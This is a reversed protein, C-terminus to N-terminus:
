VERNTPLTLHTYSVASTGGPGGNMPLILGADIQISYINGFANISGLGITGLGPSYPLITAHYSSSNTFYADQNFTAVHNFETVDFFRVPRYFDTEVDFVSLNNRVEFLSAGGNALCRLPGDASTANLSKLTLSWNASASTNGMAVPKYFETFGDKGSGSNSSLRFAVTGKSYFDINDDFSSINGLKYTGASTFTNGITEWLSNATYPTSGTIIQGANNIQLNLTGSGGLANLFYSGANTVSFLPTFSNNTVVLPSGSTRGKINVVGDVFTGGDDGINFIQTGSQDIINLNKYTASAVGTPSTIQTNGLIDLTRSGAVAPSNTTIKVNGFVNLMEPVSGSTIATGALDGLNLYGAKTFRFKSLNSLDWLQMIDPGSGSTLPKMEFQSSPASTGSGINGNSLITAWEQEEQNTASYAYDIGKMTQFILRNPTHNREYGWCIVANRIKGEYNTNGVDATSDARLGFGASYRGWRHYDMLFSLGNVVSGVASLCPRQYSGVSSWKGFGGYNTTSQSIGLNGGYFIGRTDLAVYGKGVIHQTATATTAPFPFSQLFNTTSPTWTGNIMLQHDQAKTFNICLVM